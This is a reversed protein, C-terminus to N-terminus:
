GSFPRHDDDGDVDFIELMEWEAAIDSHPFIAHCFHMRCGPPRHDYIRCRGDQGLYPCVPVCRENELLFDVVAGTEPYRGCCEYIKDAM